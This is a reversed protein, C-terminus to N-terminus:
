CTCPHMFRVQERAPGNRASVRRRVSPNQFVCYCLARVKAELLAAEGAAARLREREEGSRLAAPAAGKAFHKKDLAELPTSATLFLREARQRLTGGTKLGLAALAEKIREPGARPRPKWFILTKLSVVPDRANSM